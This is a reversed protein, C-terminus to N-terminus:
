LPHHNGYYFANKSFATSHNFDLANSAKNFLYVDKTTVLGTFM